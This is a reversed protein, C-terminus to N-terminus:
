TLAQLLLEEATQRDGSGHLTSTFQQIYIHETKSHKKHLLLYSSHGWATKFKPQVPITINRNLITIAPTLPLSHHASHGM